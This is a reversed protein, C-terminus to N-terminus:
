SDTLKGLLQFLKGVKLTILCFNNGGTNNNDHLPIHIYVHLFIVNIKGLFSSNWKNLRKFATACITLVRKRLYITLFIRENAIHM